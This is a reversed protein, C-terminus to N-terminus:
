FQQVSKLLLRLEVKMTLYCFKRQIWFNNNFLVIFIENWKKNSIQQTNQELCYTLGFFFPRCPYFCYVPTAHIIQLCSPLTFTMSYMNQTHKMAIAVATTSTSPLPHCSFLAPTLPSVSLPPSQSAGRQQRPEVPM